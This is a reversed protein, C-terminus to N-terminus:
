NHSVWSQANAAAPTPGLWRVVLITLSGNEEIAEVERCTPEAQCAYAAATVNQYCMANNGTTCYAIIQGGVIAKQEHKTLAVGAFANFSNKINNM